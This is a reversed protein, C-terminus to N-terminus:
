NAPSKPPVPVVAVAGIMEFLAIVAALSTFPATVGMFIAAPALLVMRTVSAVPFTAQTFLTAKPATASSFVISPSPVVVLGKLTFSKPIIVVLIASLATVVTFSTLPATVLAFIPSIIETVLPPM